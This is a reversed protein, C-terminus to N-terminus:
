LFVVVPISVFGLVGIKRKSAQNTNGSLCYQTFCKDHM